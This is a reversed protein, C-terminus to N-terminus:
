VSYMATHSERGFVGFRLETIPEPESIIRKRHPCSPPVGLKAGRGSDLVAFPIQQAEELLRSRRKIFVQPAKYISPKSSNTTNQRGTPCAVYEDLHEVYDGSEGPESRLPQLIWPGGHTRWTEDSTIVQRTGDAHDIAVRAIMAPVSAPRGKGPTSWHTIVGIANASGSRLLTTIDDFVIVYGMDTGEGPMPTCACM